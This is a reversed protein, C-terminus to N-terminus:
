MHRGRRRADAYTLLSFPAAGDPHHCPACRSYVIPAIDRAFTPPADLAAPPRQEALVLVALFSVTLIGGLCVLRKMTKSETAGSPALIDGGRKVHPDGSRIKRAVESGTRM